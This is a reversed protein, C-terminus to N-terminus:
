SKKMTEKSLAPQPFPKIFPVEWNEYHDCLVACVVSDNGINLDQLKQDDQFFNVETGDALPRCLRLRPPQVDMIIAAKERLELVTAGSAVDIMVFYTERHRKVRIHGVGCPIEQKKPM